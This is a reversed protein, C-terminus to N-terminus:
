QPQEAGPPAGHVIHLPVSSTADDVKHEITYTGEGTAEFRVVTPLVLGTLWDERADEVGVRLEGSVESVVDGNPDRVINAAEHAHDPTVEDATGALRVAMVVQVPTPLEQVWLTDIGAGIITGLNDHVEVYRCPIVWDIHL